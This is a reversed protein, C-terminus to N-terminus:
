SIGDTQTLAGSCGPGAPSCDPQFATESTSCLSCVQDRWESPLGRLDRVQPPSFFAPMLTLVCAEPDTRGYVCELWQAAGTGM